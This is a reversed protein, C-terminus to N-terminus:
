HRILLASLAPLNSNLNEAIIPASVARRVQRFENLVPGRGIINTGVPDLMSYGFCALFGLKM